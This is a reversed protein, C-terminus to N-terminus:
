LKKDSGCVHTLMPNIEKALKLDPAMEAYMSELQKRETADM